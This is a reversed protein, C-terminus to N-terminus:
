RTVAFKVTLSCPPAPSTASSMSLVGGLFLGAASALKQAEARADALLDASSCTRMQQLQASVQTGQVSFSLALGSKNQGISKQLATLMAVTDKMKAFPVPLRFNWTITPTAPTWPGGNIGILALGSGVGTFNAQTIGSVALATVVDALSTDISSSVSVSFVVEDAQLAASRSATVTITNSDLQGYACSALAFLVFCCNRM